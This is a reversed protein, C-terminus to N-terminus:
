GLWGYNKSQSRHLTGAWRDCANRLQHELDRVELPRLAEIGAREAKRDDLAPRVAIREPHEGPGGADTEPHRLHAELSAAAAAVDVERELNRGLGEVLAHRRKAGGAVVRRYVLKARKARAVLGATGDVHGVGVAVQHLEPGGVHRVVALLQPRSSPPRVAARKRWIGEPGRHAPLCVQRSR